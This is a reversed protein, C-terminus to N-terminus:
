RPVYIKQGIRLVSKSSKINYNADVIRQVQNINGYFKKAIYALSYGKKVIVLRRSKTSKMAPITLKQGLQLTTHKKSLSRNAQIIKKYYMPNGYFRESISALTDGAKVTITQSKTKIVKKRLKKVPKNKQVIRIKKPHEKKIEKKQASPINKVESKKEEKKHQPVVSVSDKKHQAEKEVINSSAEQLTEIAKIEADRKALAALTEELVKDELSQKKEIKAENKVMVISQAQIETSTKTNTKSSQLSNVIFFGLATLLLFLPLLFKKLSSKKEIIEDEETIVTEEHHEENDRQHRNKYHNSNYYEEEYSYVKKTETVRTEQKNQSNERESM